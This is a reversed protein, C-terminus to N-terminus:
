KSMNGFLGAIFWKQFFVFFVLPPVMAIISYTSLTTYDSSYIGLFTQVLQPVVMLAQDTIVTYAYLFILWSQIFIYVIVTIIGPFANPLIVYFLTKLRGCGDLKAAEELSPSITKMFNRLIWITFPAMFVTNLLIVAFLNNLLGLENITKALHTLLVIPPILPLYLFIKGFRRGAFNMRGLAYSGFTVIPVLLLITGTAVILSNRITKWFVSGFALFEGYTRFSIGSPIIKIEDHNDLISTRFGWVIPIFVFILLLIRCINKFINYKKNNM